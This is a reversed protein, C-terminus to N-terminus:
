QVTSRLILTVIGFGFLIFGYIGWSIAKDSYTNKPTFRWITAHVRNWFKFTLTIPAKGHFKYRGNAPPIDIERQWIRPLLIRFGANWLLESIRSLITYTIDSYAVTWMPLEPRPLLISFRKASKATMRVNGGICEIEDGDHVIMSDNELVETPVQKYITELSLRKALLFVIGAILSIGGLIMLIMLYTQTNM